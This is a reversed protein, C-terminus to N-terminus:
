IKENINQFTLNIFFINIKKSKNSILKNTKNKSDLTFRFIMLALWGHCFLYSFLKLIFFTKLFKVIM